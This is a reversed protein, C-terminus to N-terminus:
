SLYRLAQKVSKFDKCRLRDGSNSCWIAGPVRSVRQLDFDSLGYWLSPFTARLCPDTASVNIFRIYSTTSTPLWLINDEVRYNLRDQSARNKVKIVASERVRKYIAQVMNLAVDFYQRITYETAGEEKLPQFQSVWALLNPKLNWNPSTVEGSMTNDGWEVAYLLDCYLQNRLNRDPELEDFVLGCSAYPVGNPHRKSGAHHHDYPSNKGGVDVLVDAQSWAHQDRSRNVTISNFLKSERIIAIALLEDAHFRGDHTCIVLDSKMKAVDLLKM